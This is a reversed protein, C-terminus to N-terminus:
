GRPMEKTLIVGGAMNQAFDRAADPTFPVTLEIQMSLKLVRVQEGSTPHQLTGIEVGLGTLETTAVFQPGQQTEDIM